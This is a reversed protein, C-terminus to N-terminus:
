LLYHHVYYWIITLHLKRKRRCSGNFTCLLISINFTYIRVKASNQILNIVGNLLCEACHDFKIGLVQSLYATTICAERVVQSRLDKFTGQLPIELNRLNGYFEEHTKGGAIVM